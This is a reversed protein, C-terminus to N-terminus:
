TGLDDRNQQYNKPIFMQLFPPMFVVEKTYLKFGEREFKEIEHSIFNDPAIVIISNKINSCNSVTLVVKGGGARITRKIVTELRPVNPPFKCVYFAYGAFIGHRKGKGRLLEAINFGIKGKWKEDKLIYDEENVFKKKEECAYLWDTNSTFQNLASNFHYSNLL